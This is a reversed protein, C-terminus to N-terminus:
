NGGSTAPRKVPANRPQPTDRPQPAPARLRARWESFVQNTFVSPVKVPRQLSEDILRRAEDGRGWKDYLQVLKYRPLLRSPIMYMATTYNLRALEYDGMAMYDDGLFLYLDATSGFIKARELLAASLGTQGGLAAEAGYNFLYRWDWRKLPYLARYAPAAKSFGATAASDAAASWTVDTLATYATFLLLLAGLAAAWPKVAVRPAPAKGLYAAAHCVAIVLVPLCHFPNSGLSSIGLALLCATHGILNEPRFPPRPRLVSVILLTWCLFGICGYEALIQLPCDFAELVDGSLMQEDLSADHTQFYGAQYRGYDGAFNGAGIGSLPHRAIMTSTVKWILLRGRASPAKAQWLVYGAALICPVLAMLFLWRTKYRKLFLFALAAGYGAIASRALTMFLLASGAATAAALLLWVYRRRGHDEPPFVLWAVPLPLISLIYNAYYGSNYLWGRIDYDHGGSQWAQWGGLTVQVAFASLLGAYLAVPDTAIVRRCLWFIGTCAMFTAIASLTSDRPLYPIGAILIYVALLLWARAMRTAALYCLGAAGLAWVAYVDYHIIATDFRRQYLYPLAVFVCSSAAWAALRGPKLLAHLNPQRQRRVM